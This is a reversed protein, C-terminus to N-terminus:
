ETEHHLYKLACYPSVKTGLDLAAFANLMDTLKTYLKTNTRQRRHVTGFLDLPFSVFRRLESSYLLSMIMEAIILVVGCAISVRRGSTWQYSGADYIM